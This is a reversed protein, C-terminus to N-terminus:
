FIYTCFHVIYKASRMCFTRYVSIWHLYPQKFVDTKEGPNVINKAVSFAIEMETNCWYFLYTNNHISASKFCYWKTGNYYQLGVFTWNQRKSRQVYINTVIQLYLFCMILLLKQQDPLFKYWTIKHKMIINTNHEYEQKLKQIKYKMEHVLLIKVFHLGATIKHGHLWGWDCCNVQIYVPRKNLRHM